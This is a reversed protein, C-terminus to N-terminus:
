SITQTTPCPDVFDPLLAPDVVEFTVRYVPRGDVFSEMTWLGPVREEPIDFRFFNASAVGTGFGSEWTEVSQGSPAMPPHTMRVTVAGEPMGAGAQAIVGFALGQVAPVLQTPRAIWPDGAYIDIYGAITGPAPERVGSEDACILGFGFADLLAPDHWPAEPAAPAAGAAIAIVLVGALAARHMSRMSRM